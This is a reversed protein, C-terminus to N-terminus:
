AAAARVFRIIKAEPLGEDLLECALFTVEARKPPPLTLARGELAEATLQLALILRERTVVQSKEQDPPAVLREGEGLLLWQPAVGLADCIKLLMVAKVHEVQVKDKLWNHITAETTDGKSALAAATVRANSM